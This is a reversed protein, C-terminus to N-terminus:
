TIFTSCIKSCGTILKAKKSTQEDNQNCNNLSIRAVIHRLQYIHVNMYMCRLMGSSSIGQPVVLLYLCRYSETYLERQLLTAVHYTIETVYYVSPREHAEQRSEKPEHMRRLRHPSISAAPIHGTERLHCTSFRQAQHAPRQLVV